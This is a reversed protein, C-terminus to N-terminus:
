EIRLTYNAVVPSVLNNSSDSRIVIVTHINGSTDSLKSDFVIRGNKLKVLGTKTLLQNAAIEYNVYYKKDLQPSKLKIRFNGAFLNEQYYYESYPFYSYFTRENDFSIQYDKGIQLLDSNRYVEIPADNGAILLKTKPLDSKLVVYNLASDLPYFILETDSFRRVTFRGKLASNRKCLFEVIKSTGTPINHPRNLSVIVSNSAGASTNNVTFLETGSLLNPMLKLKSSTNNILIIETQSNWNDPVPVLERVETNKNKSFLSLGLYHEVFNTDTPLNFTQTSNSLTSIQINNIESVLSLSLPNSIKIPKSVFVGLAEYITLGFEIKRLSFDYLRGSLNEEKLDVQTTFGLGALLENLQHRGINKISYTSRDIPTYQSLVLKFAVARVPEFLLQVANSAILNYSTLFIEENVENFYSISEIFVGDQAVPNLKLCNISQAFSFNVLLGVTSKTRAYKRSTADNDKRLIVHSFLEKGEIMNNPNSSILPKSSDGYDTLESILQVNKIHVKQYNKVPLTIGLGRKPVANNSDTFKLDTKYDLAWSSNILGLDINRSFNNFHVTKASEELKIEAETLESALALVQLEMKSLTQDSESKANAIEKNILSTTSNLYNVYFKEDKLFDTVSYSNIVGGSTVPLKFNTFSNRLYEQNLTALEDISKAERLVRNRVSSALGTELNYNTNFSM